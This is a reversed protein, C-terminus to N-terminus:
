PLAPVSMFIMLIVLRSSEPLRTSIRSSRFTGMLSPITVLSARIRAANGVM